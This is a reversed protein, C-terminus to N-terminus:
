VRGDRLFELKTRLKKLGRYLHTKVTGDSCQLITGVQRTSLGNLHRLIVVARQLTPLEHLAREIHVALEGDQSHTHEAEMTMSMTDAGVVEYQAKRKARAVSNLALNTVIRYLWTGFSAEGRFSNLHRYARIFAEQTIDEAHEHNNVFGYAVNYAQRMYCDVLQRFADHNGHKADLILQEEGRDTSRPPTFEDAAPM